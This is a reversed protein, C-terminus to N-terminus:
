VFSVANIDYCKHVKHSFKNQLLKLEKFNCCAKTLTKKTVIAQWLATTQKTVFGSVGELM